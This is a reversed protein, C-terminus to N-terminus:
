RTEEGQDPRGEDTRATDPIEPGRAAGSSRVVFTEQLAISAEDHRGQNLLGPLQEARDSV